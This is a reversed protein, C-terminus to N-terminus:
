IKTQPYSWMCILGTLLCTKSLLLIILYLIGVGREKRRGIQGEEGEVGEGGRMESRERGGKKERERERPTIVVRGILVQDSITWVRGKREVSRDDGGSQEGM